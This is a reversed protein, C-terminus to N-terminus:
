PGGLLRGANPGPTQDFVARVAVVVRRAAGPHSLGGLKPRDFGGTLLCDLCEAIRRDAADRALRDPEALEILDGKFQLSKRTFRIRWM